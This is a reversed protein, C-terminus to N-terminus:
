SFVEGERADHGAWSSIRGREAGDGGIRTLRTKFYGFNPSIRAGKGFGGMTVLTKADLSLCKQQGGLRGM